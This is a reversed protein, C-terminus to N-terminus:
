GAEVIQTVEERLEQTWAPNASGDYFASAAERYAERDAEHFTVGQEELDARDQDGQEAQLETYHEGAKLIEESVISQMEPDLAAFADAGVVIGGIMDVHGTMTIHGAVEYLKDGLLQPIPGDSADVVGESLASYIESRSLEVPTAGMSSFIAAQVPNGSIRVLRGGLDDPSGYGATGVMERQGAYWNWALSHLGQDEMAATWESMLDSDLFTNIDEYSDFLYPGQLIGMAPDGYESAYGPNTDFIIPAGASAQEQIDPLSGLQENPFVDIHVQGDTREEIADAVEQPVSALPESGDAATAWQFTVVGDDGSGGSCSALALAAAGVMLSVAVRGTRAKLLKQPM